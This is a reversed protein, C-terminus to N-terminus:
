DNKLESIKEDYYNMRDDPRIETRVVANWDYLINKSIRYELIKLQQKSYTNSDITKKFSDLKQDVKQEHTSLENQLDKIRSQNM